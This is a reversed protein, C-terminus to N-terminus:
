AILTILVQVIGIIFGLVGGLLEVFKFEKSMIQNLIDELKESSFSSVRSYVIKELDLDKQLEGMYNQMIVPFLNQLEEIFIRKMEDITKEGVFMAIMPMQQGLKVRLFEDIHKEVFPMIKQINEPNSIKQEIDRFSLLEDGVLKGLKEAFQKQRKPFIGQVTLGLIQKPERPHFLMKIAIWNTFWGIFASIIPILILWYNM